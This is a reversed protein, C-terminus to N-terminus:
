LGDFTELCDNIMNCALALCPLVTQTMYADTFQQLESYNCEDSGGPLDFGPCRQPIALCTTKYDEHVMRAPGAARAMDFCTLTSGNCATGTICPLLTNFWSSRVRTADDVCETVCTQLSLVNGCTVGHMCYDNCVQMATAPAVPEDGASGMMTDSTADDGRADSGNGGGGGSDNGCAALLVVGIWWRAM